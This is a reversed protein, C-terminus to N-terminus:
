SLVVRAAGTAGHRPAAEHRYREPHRLLEHLSGLPVIGNMALDFTVTSVIGVLVIRGDIHAYMGGGSAGPILGCRVDVDGATLSVSAAPVTCAAPASAIQIVTGTAGKPTPLDHPHQGRLLSGDSNLPQFGAITLSGTTPIAAGIAASTGPVVHDMVLVAADLQPRPDDRYREDVLVAAAPSEVGDRIVTVSFTTRDGDLVCHAATVVYRTGTIPTGSCVESGRVRVLVDALADHIPHPVPPGGHANAGAHAPTAGAAVGAVLLTGALLARRLIFRQHSRTAQM